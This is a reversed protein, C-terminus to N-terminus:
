SRENLDIIKLYIHIEGQTLENLSYATGSADPTFLYDVTDDASAYHKGGNTKLLAGTGWGTPYETGDLHIQAADIYGDPDDGDGVDITLDSGGGTDDYSTVLKYAAATVVQGQKVATTFTKTASDSLTGANATSFDEFTIIYKHTFGDARNQTNATAIYKAM